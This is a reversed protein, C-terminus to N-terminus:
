RLITEVSIVRNEEDSVSMFHLGRPLDFLSLSEGANVATQSVLKGSLDYVVVQYKSDVAGNLYLLDGQQSIEVGFDVQDWKRGGIDKSSDCDYINMTFGINPEDDLNEGLLEFEPLFFKLTLSESHGAEIEEATISASGAALEAFFSDFAGCAEKLQIIAVVKEGVKVEIHDRDCDGPCHDKIDSWYVVEVSEVPDPDTQDIAARGIGTSGDSCFPRVRAVLLQDVDLPAQLGFNYSGFDGNVLLSESYSTGELYHVFDVLYEESATSNASYSIQIGENQNIALEIENIESCQNQAQVINWVAMHLALIIILKRM